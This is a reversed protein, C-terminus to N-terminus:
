CFHYFFVPLAYWDSPVHQGGLLGLLVNYFYQADDALFLGASLIFVKDLNYCLVNTRVLQNNRM